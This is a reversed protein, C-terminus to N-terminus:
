TLGAQELEGHELIYIPSTKLLITESGHQTPYNGVCHSKLRTGQLHGPM